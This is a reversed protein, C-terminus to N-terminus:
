FSKETAVCLWNRYADVPIIESRRELGNDTINQFGYGYMFVARVVNKVLRKLM